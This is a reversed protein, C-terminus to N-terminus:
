PFAVSQQRTFDHNVLVAAVARAIKAGGRASPEIPSLASYDTAETCILRLDLIPVKAAFAERVITDNFLALGARAGPELGPVADYVTCVFSPHGTARLAALMARYTARFEDGAQQLQGLLEGGTRGTVNLIGAQGLADNGGVSVVVHTAEPPLNRLQREVDATVDMDTALLTAGWGAPLERRLQEIVPPEGPVYVANDFISDGLLVAHMISRREAAYPPLWGEVLRWM